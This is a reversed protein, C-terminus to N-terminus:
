RDPETYNISDEQEGLEWMQEKGDRWSVMEEALKFFGIIGGFLCFFNLGNKMHCCFVDAATKSSLRHM